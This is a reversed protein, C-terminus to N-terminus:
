LHVEGRPVWAIRGDWGDSHRAFGPGFPAPLFYSGWRKEPDQDWLGGNHIWHDAENLWLWMQLVASRDSDWVVSMRLRELQVKDKTDLVAAPKVEVYIPRGSISDLIDLRFDPLYQGGDSAFCEPEYAWKWGLGDAYEAWAAELRSRMRIGKYLTPRAKIIASV